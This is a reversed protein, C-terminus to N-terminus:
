NRKLTEEQIKRIHDTLIKDLKDTKAKVKYNPIDERQFKKVEDGWDYNSFHKYYYAMATQVIEHFDKEKPINITDGSFADIIRIFLDLGVISYLKALQQSNNTHENFLQIEILEKVLKEGTNEM